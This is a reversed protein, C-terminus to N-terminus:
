PSNRVIYLWPFWCWFRIWNNPAMRVKAFLYKPCNIKHTWFIGSAPHNVESVWLSLINTGSTPPKKRAKLHHFSTFFSTCMAVCCRSKSKNHFTGTSICNNIAVFHLQTTAIKHYSWISCPMFM